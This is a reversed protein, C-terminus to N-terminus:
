DPCFRCFPNGPMGIAPKDDSPKPKEAETSSPEQNTAPPTEVVKTEAEANQEVPKEYPEPFPLKGGLEQYRRQLGRSAPAHKLGETVTQLAKGKDSMKEFQGALSLYAQINRPNHELAKYLDQIAKTTDGLMLFVKARNSYVDAQLVSGPPLHSVMYGFEGAASTLQGKKDLASRARYSRNINNMGFCYHHMHLWTEAGFQESWMKNEAPNKKQIKERCYPPLTAYEQDTPAFQEAHASVALASGVLFMALFNQTSKRM